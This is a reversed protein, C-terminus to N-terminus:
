IWMFVNRVASSKALGFNKIPSQCIQKALVWAKILPFRDKLSVIDKLDEGNTVNM